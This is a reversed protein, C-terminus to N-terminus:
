QKVEFIPHSAETGELGRPDVIPNFIIFRDVLAIRSGSPLHEAAATQFNPALTSFIETLYKACQQKVAQECSM